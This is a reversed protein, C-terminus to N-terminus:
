QHDEWGDQIAKRTDRRDAARGCPTSQIDRSVECSDGHGPCACRGFKKRKRMLKSQSM